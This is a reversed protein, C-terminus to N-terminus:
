RGVWGMAVSLTLAFTILWSALVGVRTLTGWTTGVATKDVKTALAEYIAKV